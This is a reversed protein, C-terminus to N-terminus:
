GLAAGPRVPGVRLRGGAHIVEVPTGYVESLVEPVCVEAPTGVLRVRGHQLLVLRDAYSAAADLDHLVVGVAAGRSAMERMLQLSAETHAVDMASTPEDLLIVSGSSVPTAQAIVRALAARQREGGSLTTIDREALHHLGALELAADVAGEDDTKLKRWPTRGMEVIERVTFAFAVSSDQPMVARRRAAEAHHVKRAESEGLWVSGSTPRLHSAAVALLTSKGAGNPGIVATVKGPELSLDVSSLIERGEVAVTAGRGELAGRVGSAASAPSSSSASPVSAVASM